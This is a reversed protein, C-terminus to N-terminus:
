HSQDQRSNRLRNTLPRLQQSAESSTAAGSNRSRKRYEILANRAEIRREQYWAVVEPREDLLPRCAEDWSDILLKEQSLPEASRM